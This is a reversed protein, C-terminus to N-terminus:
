WTKILRKFTANPFNNYIKEDVWLLYGPTESNVQKVTLVGIQNKKEDLVAWKFEENGRLISNIVPKVTLEKSAKM